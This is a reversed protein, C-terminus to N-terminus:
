RTGMSLAGAGPGGEGGLRALDSNPAVRAARTKAAITTIATSPLRAADQHGRRADVVRHRAVPQEQARHGGDMGRKPVGTRAM